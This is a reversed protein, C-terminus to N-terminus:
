RAPIYLVHVQGTSSYTTSVSDLKYKWLVDAEGSAQDQLERNSM